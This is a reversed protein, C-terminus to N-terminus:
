KKPKKNEHKDYVHILVKIFTKMAMGAQLALTKIAYHDENEVEIHKM